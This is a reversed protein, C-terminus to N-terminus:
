GVDVGCRHRGLLSWDRGTLNDRRRGGSRRGPTCIPWDWRGASPEARPTARERLNEEEGWCDTSWGKGKRPAGPAERAGGAGERRSDYLPINGAMRRSGTSEGDEMPKGSRGTWSWAGESSTWPRPSPCTKDLPAPSLCPRPSLANSLPAADACRRPNSAPRSPRRPGYAPWLDPVLSLFPGPCLCLCLHNTRGDEGASTVSGAKWLPACIWVIM